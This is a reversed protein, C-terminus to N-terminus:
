PAKPEYSGEPSGRPEVQALRPTDADVAPVLLLTPLEEGFDVSTGLGPGDATQEPSGHDLFDEPLLDFGHASPDVNVDALDISLSSTRSPEGPNRLRLDLSEVALQLAALEASEVADAPETLGSVIAELADRFEGADHYRQDPELALSRRVLPGLPSNLILDPIELTGTVHTVLCKYAGKDNVVPVGTLMEVFTLGMQYVDMTPSITQGQIYEPALYRPTGSIHGTTTLRSSTELAFALGFDLICLRESRCGSDVVFLNTPKLDRHVIDRKHAHDLADLCRAMLRVARAVEFRGERQLAQDLTHGSLLELVMYPLGRDTVGYDFITVAGPHQLRAAIQAEQVFRTRFQQATEANGEIHLIKIAVPRDISIQRGEYVEAFGGAGIFRVVEFRGDLVTGIEALCESQDVPIQGM